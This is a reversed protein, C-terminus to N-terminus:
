HAKLALEICKLQVLIIVELFTAQMYAVKCVVSLAWDVTKRTDVDVFSILYLSLFYCSEELSSVLPKVPLVLAGIHSSLKPQLEKLGLDLLFCYETILVEATCGTRM